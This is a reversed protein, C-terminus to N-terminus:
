RSNYKEVYVAAALLVEHSDKLFGVGSNCNNCLLGRVRGTEHDHDVYLKEKSLCIACRDNQIECMISYQDKTIGYRKKRWTGLEKQRELIHEKNKAYYEREYKQKAELSPFGTFKGPM